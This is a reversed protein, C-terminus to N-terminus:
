AAGWIRRPERIRRATGGPLPQVQATSDTRRASPVSTTGAPPRPEGSTSPRAKPSHPQLAPAPDRTNAAGRSHPHRGPLGPTGNALCELFHRLWHHFGRLIVELRWKWRPSSRTLQDLHGQQRTVNTVGALKYSNM